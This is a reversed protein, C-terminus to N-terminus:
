SNKVPADARRGAHGSVSLSLPGIMRSLVRDKRILRHFIAMLIHGAILICLAWALFGHLANAPAIMWPVTEGTVPVITLGWSIWGKGEGYSRLLALAPIAAMLAYLSVHGALSARGLWNKERPPRNPMNWLAWAARIVVLIITLLGVTGHYPGFSLITGLLPSQSFVRWALITSFQWILLYAMGWHLARTILGYRDPTDVWPNSFQNNM